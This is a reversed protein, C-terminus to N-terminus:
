TNFLSLNAVSISICMISYTVIDFESVCMISYALINFEALGACKIKFFYKM